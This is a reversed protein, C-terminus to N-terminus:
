YYIGYPSYSNVYSGYAYGPQGALSGYYGRSSDYRANNIMNTGHNLASYRNYRRRTYFRRARLDNDAIDRLRNYDANTGLRAILFRDREAPTMNGSNAARIVAGQGWDNNFRNLGLRLSDVDKMGNKGVHYAGLITGALALAALTPSASKVLGKSKLNSLSDSATILAARKYMGEKYKLDKLADCATILVTLNSM